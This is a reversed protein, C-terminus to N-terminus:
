MRLMKRLNQAELDSVYPEHPDIDEFWPFNCDRTFDRLKSVFTEEQSKLMQQLKAKTLKKGATFSPDYVISWKQGRTLFELLGKRASPAAKTLGDALQAAGNVWRLKTGIRLAQQYSVTLEFGARSSRLGHLSSLNRTMADFIGRSDTILAGHTRAKLEAELSERTVTGGNLEFWVARLLFCSDEGITIAQVEAGNSGLTERPAKSSKWAILALTGEEGDLLSRPGYCALYGVTSSKNPRNGQSADAWVVTSIAEWPLGWSPYLLRQGATRRVERVLKNAEELTAVTATPVKSLLLSVEAQFQPGTQTGKWAVTGLLGRLAAVEEKTAPSKQQSLRQKSIPIEKVWERIYEEQNVSIGDPTQKVFCGAFTFGESALSWKGFKFTSRLHEKAKEYIVNGKRGAILFDDVHIGTVAILENAEDYLGFLCRDFTM